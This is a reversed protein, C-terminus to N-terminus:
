GRMGHKLLAYVQTNNPFYWGVRCLDAANISGAYNSLSSITYKEVDIFDIGVINKLRIRWLNTAKHLIEVDLLLYHKLYEGINKFKSKKYFELCKAIEESKIDAGGTLESKWASPTTPLEPLLLKDVDTLISFPFHGKEVSLKFLNGFSRLNTGPALMKTIDRFTIGLCTKIVTVKNGKKDIKPRAKSEFLYPILYSELIIMDYGSGYFSFITYCNVLKNLKAQLLGPVLNDYNKIVDDTFENRFEEFKTLVQNYAERYKDLYKMLPSILALKQAKIESFRELVRNWYREVMKYIQSEEDEESDFEDLISFVDISGLCDTHGIMIPKQVKLVHDPEAGIYSIGESTSKTFSNLPKQNETCLTMSEIDFSALSMECCKDIINQNQLTDIGLLKLLDYCGLKITCLQEQGEESMNHSYSSAEKSCITCKCIKELQKSEKIADEDESEPPTLNLMQHIIKQEERKKKTWKKKNKERTKTKRIEFAENVEQITRKRLNSSSIPSIHLNDRIIYKNTNAIQQRIRQIYEVKPICLFNGYLVIPTCAKIDDESKPEKGLGTFLQTFICKEPKTRQKLRKQPLKLVGSQNGEYVFIPINDHIRWEHSLLQQYDEFIDSTLIQKCIELQPFNLLTAFSSAFSNGIDVTNASFFPAKIDSTNKLYLLNLQNNPGVLLNVTTLQNEKFPKKISSFWIEYDQKIKSYIVLHINLFKALRKLDPSHQFNFAEPKREPHRNKYLYKFIRESLKNKRKFSSINVNTDILTLNTYFESYLHMGDSGLPYNTFREECYNFLAKELCYKKGFTLDLQCNVNDVVNELQQSM